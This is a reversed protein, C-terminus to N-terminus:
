RKWVIKRRGSLVHYAGVFTAANIMCFYYPLRLVGPRLPYLMGLVALAYFAVQLRWLSVYVTSAPLLANTVLLAVLCLPVVLRGAKHSIFFLVPLWRPPSLLARLEGLQEFNGAMIRARRSFGTMERADEIAV